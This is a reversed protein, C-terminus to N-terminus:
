SGAKVSSKSKLPKPQMAWSQIREAQIPGFLSELSEAERSKRRSHMTCSVALLLLSTLFPLAFGAYQYKVFIVSALASGTSFFLLTGLRIRNAFVQRYKEKSFRRLHRVRVLSVGFDTLIGTLHTTRIQGRTASVMSANQLGCAACLASVLIIDRGREFPEGFEGFLGLCGLILTVGLLSSIIILTTIYRPPRHLLQLRDILLASIVAGALFSFPISLLEIAALIEGAGLRIGILTGIGTVHSVFSHCSLFGGANIAGAQFAFGFWCLVHKKNRFSNENFQIM